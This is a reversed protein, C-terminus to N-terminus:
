PRFSLQKKMIGIYKSSVPIEDSYKKTQLIMSRSTAKLIEFQNTNILFQRHCRIIPTIPNVIQEEINKLSSRLILKQRTDNVLYHIDVYNDDSAIYLIENLNFDVIKGDGSIIKFREGSSIKLLEKKNFFQSIGVLFFAVTFSIVFTRLLVLLFEVFTFDRFGGLYSKYLFNIAGAFLLVLTYWLIAKGINWKKFAKPILNPIVWEMFIISLSFIIGLSFILVDVIISQRAQNAIGFPNYLFIFCSGGIGLLLIWLLKKLSRQPTPIPTVLFSIIQGSHM